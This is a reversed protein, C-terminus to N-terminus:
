VRRQSYEADATVSTLKNYLVPYQAQTPLDGDPTVAGTDIYSLVTSAVTAIIGLSGGIRGVVSYSNAGPYSNWAVRISNLTGTITITAFNVPATNGFTDTAFVSYVYSGAVLTGSGQEQLTPAPMPRGSVQMDQTPTIVDVFEIGTNSKLVVDIIDSIAHDYGLIGQKPAMLETVATRADSECQSLSAWSYCFLRLSVTRNVATPDKWYFRTSYMTKDQLAQLYNNKQTTNWPSTTIPVVKVTNMLTVDTPDLERQAFTKADVIGPYELATAVYQARTVASGFNGFNSSSVRKFVRADQENAGGTPISDITYSVGAIINNVQSVKAGDVNVSNGDFGSTVAYVIRVDDTTLPKSGYTENGFQIRLQGSPTTRDLFAEQGKYLWLGASTKTLSTSGIWVYVDDDAVVFGKEVSIFTQYDSGLGPLGIDVIYGQRLTIPVSGGTTCVYSQNTYWYTGAGQFQTFAPLTVTDPDGGVTKTYSFTVDIEAAKKRTLRLGQMDAIAYLARDSMATEAFSDQAYRMAKLNNLAGVTAIFDILTQGTQTPLLGKWSSKDALKAQLQARIDEYDPATTSLLNITAM